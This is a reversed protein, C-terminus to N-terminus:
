SIYGHKVLKLEEDQVLGIGEAHYKFEVASPELPTTEKIKLTDEFHKAPTDLEANMSIIQARDMAVNPAIEQFYKSGLLVTGPMLIGPKAGNKGALWAGHHDVIKGDEYFDVEEGFYFVSNTQDCIAVFNRSVEALEGDVSEREEMVRTNVGDVIKTKDLITIVLDIKEGDENTGKLVLQYGPKMIFFTNEGTNSWNCKDLFFNTTYGDLSKESGLATALQHGNALMGAAIATVIAGLVLIRTRSKM